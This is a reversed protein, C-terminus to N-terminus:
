SILSDICLTADFDFMDHEVLEVNSFRNPFIILFNSYVRKAVVLNGKSTFLM